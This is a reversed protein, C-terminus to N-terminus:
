SELLAELSDRSLGSTGGELMEIPVGKKLLDRAMMKAMSDKGQEIGQELGREMLQEAATMTEGRYQPLEEFVRNILYDPNIEWTRMAYKLVDVMYQSSKGENCVESAAGIFRELTIDTIKRDFVHKFILEMPALQGHLSLEQDSFQGVDVLIPRFLYRATFEKDNFLDEVNLSYPYPSPLGHYYILHVLRPLDTTNNERAYDLLASSGYNVYRLPLLKDPTSQHALELMLMGPRNGDYRFLYIADAFTQALRQNSPSKRIFEGSLQYLELSEWDVRAVLEQPFYTQCFLRLRSQDKLWHKFNLDHINHAM